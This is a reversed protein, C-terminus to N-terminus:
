TYKWLKQFIEKLTAAESHDRRLTGTFPEHLSFTMVLDGVVNINADIKFDPIMKIFTYNDQYEKKYEIDVDENPTIVHASIKNDIRRKIYHDIFDTDLIEADQASEFALIDEGKKIAEGLVELYVRKIGEIGEYKVIGISESEKLSFLVKKVNEILDEDLQSLELPIFSATTEEFLLLKKEELLTLSEDIDKEDYELFSLLEDKTLKRLACLEVYVDATIENFDFMEAIEALNITM